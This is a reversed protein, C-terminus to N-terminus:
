PANESFPNIQTFDIFDDAEAEIEDNQATPDNVDIDYAEQIISFGDEDRLELRSETAITWNNLEINYDREIRDIDRIGTNFLEGSYEFMECKIDFFPLSGLPMM